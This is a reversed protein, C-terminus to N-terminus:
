RKEIPADLVVRDAVLADIDATSYGYETLIERSHEGCM